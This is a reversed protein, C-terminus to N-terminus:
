RRILPAYGASEEIGVPPGGTGEPKVSEYLVVDAEELEGQLARYYEADGIHVVGVLNIVPGGDPRRLRHSAIELAVSRGEEASIRLFSPPDAPVTQDPRGLKNIDIASAATASTAVIALLFFISRRDIM